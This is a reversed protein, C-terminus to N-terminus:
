SGANQAVYDAVQQAQEGELLGQPMQGPGQEIAQVVEAAEPEVEDLNPGVRGSAGAASLTHCGGCTSAFVEKPDGSAAQDPRDATTDDGGGCGAFALTLIM